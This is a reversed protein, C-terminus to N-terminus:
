NYLIMWECVKCVTHLLLVCWDELVKIWIHKDAERRALLQECSNVFIFQQYARQCKLM